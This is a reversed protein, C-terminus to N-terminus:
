WKRECGVRFEALKDKRYDHWRSAFYPTEPGFIASFIGVEVRAHM